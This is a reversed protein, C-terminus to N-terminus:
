VYSEETFLLQEFDPEATPDNCGKPWQRRSEVLALTVQQSGHPSSDPYTCFYDRVAKTACPSLCLRAQTQIDTGKLGPDSPLRARTIGSSRDTAQCGPESGRRQYLRSSCQEAAPLHSTSSSEKILLPPSPQNRKKEASGTTKKHKTHIESPQLSEASHFWSPKPFSLNGTSRHHSPPSSSDWKLHQFSHADKLPLLYAKGKDLM